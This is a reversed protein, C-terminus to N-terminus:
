SPTFRREGFLLTILKLSVLRRFLSVRPRGVGAHGPERGGLDKGAARFDHIAPVAGTMVSQCRGAHTM